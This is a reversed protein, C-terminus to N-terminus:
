VAAIKDAHEKGQMTEVYGLSGKTGAKVQDRSPIHNGWYDYFDDRGLVCLGQELMSMLHRGVSGEMRWAAGANISRQAQEIDSWKM